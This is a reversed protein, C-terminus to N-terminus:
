SDTYKVPTPPIVGVAEDHRNRKNVSHHRHPAAALHSRHACSAHAPAHGGSSRRRRPPADVRQGLLKNRNVMGQVFHNLKKRKQPPNIAADAAVYEEGDVDEDDHDENGLIVM